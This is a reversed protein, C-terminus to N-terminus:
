TTQRSFRPSIDNAILTRYLGYVVLAALAAIYIYTPAAFVRGSEKIGRLNAVSIIVILALGLLVRQDALSRFAPISVIAAVGASISVAV